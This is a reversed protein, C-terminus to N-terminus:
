CFTLIRLTVTAYRAETAGRAEPADRAKPQTHTNKYL